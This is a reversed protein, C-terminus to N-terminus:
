NLGGIMENMAYIEVEQNGFSLSTIAFDFNIKVGLLYRENLGLGVRSSTLKRQVVEFKAGQMTLEEKLKMTFSNQSMPKNGNEECFAKYLLYLYKNAVGYGREVIIADRIYRRIPNVEDKYDSLEQEMKKSKTFKGNKILRELGNLALQFIGDLEDNFRESLGRIKQNDKVEKDFSLILMRRFVAADMSSKPKDNGAFAFKPKEEPLLSYPDQNKPNIQIVDRPSVLAKLNSMQGKDVGLKDIESGINLIKNALGHMEHGELQQLQLNSVNSAGFFSRLVDLIVSKGNSGSKGYLFLFSEYDHSPLFCYGMFEMLTDQDGADSMVQNLFHQWKPCKAEKNYDFDLINTACLNKNHQGSFVVKGSKSIIVAGNKVNIVRKNQLAPEKRKEEIHLGSMIINEALEEANRALIKKKDVKAIPMWTNYIFKILSRTDIQEFYTGTWIYLERKFEAVDYGMKRISAIFSVVMDSIHTQHYNTLLTKNINALEDIKLVLKDVLEEDQNTVILFQKLFREKIEAYFSKNDKVLGKFTGIVQNIYADDLEGKVPLINIYNGDNDQILLEKKIDNWSKFNELRKFNSLDSDLLEEIEEIIENTLKFSAFTIIDYVSETGFRPMNDEIYDSIDYKTPLARNIKFFLTIYINAAVSELERYRKIANEYGAKDNDFWIYVTKSKLLEKHAEWSNTVGGLTIANAGFSILNIADKEGECIIIRNENSAIFPKIPFPYAKAGAEGIWKGPMRENSYTSGNWTFKNRYKINRTKGKEDKILIAISQQEGSYGIYESAAARFAESKFAFIDFVEDNANLNKAAQSLAPSIANIRQTMAHYKKNEQDTRKAELEARLKAQKALEESDVEGNLEYSAGFFNLVSKAADVPSLGTSLEIFKAADGGTGCAFCNFFAGDKGSKLNCSPTKDDGHFHCHCQKSNTFKVGNAEMLSRLEDVGIHLKKLEDFVNNM